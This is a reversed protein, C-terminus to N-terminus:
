YGHRKIRDPICRAVSKAQASPEDPAPLAGIADWVTKRAGPLASPFAYGKGLRNGVVFLRERLQPVGYDVANLIQPPAVQYCYTTGSYEVPEQLTKLLLVLARGGDWNTLGKVNELLFGKPLTERVIRVFEFLLHGREDELGRRMGAISFSQCPPGGIVLAPEGVSLGATALVEAGSVRRIDRCLIPLDPVNHRLTQCCATDQEVAVAIRFGARRFGIDLGGAGSFLSIVPLDRLTSVSIKDIRGRGM